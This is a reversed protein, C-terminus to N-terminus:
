AKAFIVERPEALNTDVVQVRRFSPTYNAPQGLDIKHTGREVTLPENTRGVEEGDIFVRRATPYRVIMYEDM